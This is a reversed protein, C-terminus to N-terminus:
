FGGLLYLLVFPAAGLLFLPLGRVAAYLESATPM